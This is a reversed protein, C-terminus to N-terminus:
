MTCCWRRGFGVTVLFCRWSYWLLLLGQGMPVVEISVCWCAAAAAWVWLRSLEVGPHRVDAPVV